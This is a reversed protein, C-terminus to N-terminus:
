GSDETKQAIARGHYLGIIGVVLTLFLGVAIRPAYRTRRVM